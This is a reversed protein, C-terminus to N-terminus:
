ANAKERKKPAEPESKTAIIELADALRSQQAELSRQLADKRDNEAKMDGLKREYELQLDSKKQKPEWEDAADSKIRPPNIPRGPDPKWGKPPTQRFGKAFYRSPNGGPPLFFPEGTNSDWLVANANKPRHADGGKAETWLYQITEDM